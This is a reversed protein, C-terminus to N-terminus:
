EQGSHTKGLEQVDLHKDTPTDLLSETAMIQPM